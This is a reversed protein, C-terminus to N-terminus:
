ASAEWPDTRTFKAEVAELTVREHLSLERRGRRAYSRAHDALRNRVLAMLWPMFPRASDYTARATHLSLLVDQVIDEVSGDGLFGRRRRILRRVRPTVAELLERYAASDGRQAAAMLAGLCAGRDVTDAM